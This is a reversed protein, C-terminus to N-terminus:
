WAIPPATGDGVLVFPAWAAPHALDAPAAPDDLLALEARRLAEDRGLMPDRELEDFMATTLRQAADSFVTWHSVLLSRGGAHLFAKALGSLGVAGPTGDSAGTNCASLVVFDAAFRLKAVESATLVGDDAETAVAPPTLILGPEALGPLEGAVGAHTAFAVVRARALAGAKVAAETAQRGLILSDEGARLSRALERLEDATEPLPPLARVDAPDALGTAVLAGLATTSSRSGGLIPDGIGRFADESRPPPTDLGRLVRLSSVSPLTTTAWTRALWDLERYSAGAAPEGRVLVAFPLSQLPGDPVVILRKAGALLAPDVPLLKTYLRHALAADFKPATAETWQAPDLQLRLERVSRELEGTAFDLRAMQAGERRLAWLFVEESGGVPAPRLVAYALLAEDAALLRQVEAVSAPVPNTLERYSPYSGAFRGNFDDIRGAVEVAAARLRLEAAPDREGDPRSSVEVVARDLEGRREVLALWDRILGALEDEGIALRAAVRAVAAAVDSAQARQGARFTADLLTARQRPRREAFRWGIAVERASVLDPTPPPLPQGGAAEPLLARRTVVRVRRVEAARQVTKMAAGLRDVEALSWALAALSAATDPHNKGLADSRIAAARRLLPVAQDHRDRAVYRGAVESLTAATRPHNRGHEREAQWVVGHPGPEGDPGATGPVDACAAALFLLLLAPVTLPKAM